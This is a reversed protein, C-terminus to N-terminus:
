KYGQCLLFDTGQETSLILVDGSFQLLFEGAQDGIFKAPVEKTFTPFIPLTRPGILLFYENPHELNGAQLRVSTKGICDFYVSAALAERSAEHFIEETPKLESASANTVLLFGFTLTIFALNLIM